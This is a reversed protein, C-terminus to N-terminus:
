YVSAPEGTVPLADSTGPPQEVSEAAIGTTSAVPLAIGIPIESVAVNPTSMPLMATSLPVSVALLRAAPVEVAVTFWPTM